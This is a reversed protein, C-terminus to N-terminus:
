VIGDNYKIIENGPSIIANLNNQQVKALEAILEGIPAISKNYAEFDGADARYELRLGEPTANIFPYGLYNYQLEDKVKAYQTTDIGGVYRRMLRNFDRIIAPDQYEVKNYAFPISFQRSAQIFSDGESFNFIAGIPVAKPFCGTAKAWKTIYQRSPDMVFRYISVTYNLRQMYIDDEYAMVEGKNLLAIYLVWLYYIAMITGGSMDRFGLSLEGSRNLMDSGKAFTVDENHFGGETTETEIMFDPWGSIDSLCNVLPTMFPNKSDFLPCKSSDEAFLECFHTDLLCRIMFSINRVNHGGTAVNTTDLTNIIRNQRINGDSLNLRPRTIFTMGVQDGNPPIFATRYRDLKALVTQMSNTFGGAGISVYLNHMIGKYLLGLQDETLFTGPKLYQRVGSNNEFELIDQWIFNPDIKM